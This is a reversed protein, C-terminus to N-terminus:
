GARPALGSSTSDLTGGCSRQLSVAIHRKGQVVQGTLGHGRRFGGLFRWSPAQPSRRVSVRAGVRMRAHAHARARARVCVCVCVCVCVRVCARARVCARVCVCVCV